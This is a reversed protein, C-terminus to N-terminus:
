EEKSKNFITMITSTWGIIGNWMLYAHLADRLTMKEQFEIYGGPNGDCFQRIDVVVTDPLDSLSIVRTSM